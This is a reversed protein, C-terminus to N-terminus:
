AANAQKMSDETVHLSCITDYIKEDLLTVAEAKAFDQKSKLFKEYHMLALSITQMDTLSISLRRKSEILAPSESESSKIERAINLFISNVLPMLIKKM